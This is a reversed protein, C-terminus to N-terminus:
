AQESEVPVWPGLRQSEVRHPARGPYEKDWLKAVHRMADPDVNADAVTDGGGGDAIRYRRTDHADAAALVAAAEARLGEADTAHLHDWDFEHFECIARAAAEIREPTM